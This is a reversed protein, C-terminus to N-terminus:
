VHRIWFNCSPKDQLQFAYRGNKSVSYALGAPTRQKTGTQLQIQEDLRVLASCPLVLAFMAIELKKRSSGVFFVDVGEVPVGYLTQIGIPGLDSAELMAGTQNNGAPHLQVKKGLIHELSALPMGIKLLGTQGRDAILQSSASNAPQAHAIGTVAVFLFSARLWRRADSIKYRLFM